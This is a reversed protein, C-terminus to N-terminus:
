HWYEPSARRPKQAAAAAAATPTTTPVAQDLSTTPTAAPAAIAKNALYTESISSNAM